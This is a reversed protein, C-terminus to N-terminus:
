KNLVFGVFTPMDVEISDTLTKLRGAGTIEMIEIINKKMAAIFLYKGDPTVAIHRPHTATPYFGLRSLKGNDNIRFVAVGDNGERLSAFLYKSDSSITIAGGGGRPKDSITTEELLQLAGNNYEFTLITSKLETIVYLYRGSKDFIMHRPGSGQPVPFDKRSNEIIFKGRKSYDIDFRYITDTGLDTVFMYKGDPSFISCHPHPAEQRKTNISSGSFVILQSLPLLKGQIPFVSISGGGYNCTVIFKNRPDISIHCSGEGKTVRRNILKLKGSKNDLLFSNVYSNGKENESVSYIYEKNNSFTLFSPNCVNCLSVIKIERRLSDGLYVYIGKSKGKTYTGTIIRTKM